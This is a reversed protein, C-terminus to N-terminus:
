VPSATRRRATKSNAHPAAHKWAVTSSARSARREEPAASCDIAYRERNRVEFSLVSNLISTM